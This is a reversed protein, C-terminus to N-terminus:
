FDSRGSVSRKLCGLCVLVFTRQKLEGVLMTVLLFQEQKLPLYVWPSCIMDLFIYSSHLLDQMANPWLVGFCTQWKVKNCPGVTYISKWIVTFCFFMTVNTPLVAQACSEKLSLRIFAPFIVSLFGCGMFFSFFLGKLWWGFGGVYFLCTVSFM